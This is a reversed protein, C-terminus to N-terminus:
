RGQWADQDQSAHRIAVIVVADETQRYAVLYRFKKLLYFRYTDDWRPYQDPNKRVADISQEVEAGYRQAASISQDLYWAVANDYELQASLLIDVKKM